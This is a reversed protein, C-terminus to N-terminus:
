ATEKVATVSTIKWAKWFRGRGNCFIMAKARAAIENDAEVETLRIRTPCCAKLRVKFKM